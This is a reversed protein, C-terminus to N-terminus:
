WREEGHIRALLARATAFECPVECPGGVYHHHSEVMAEISAAMEPAAAILRANAAESMKFAAVGPITVRYKLGYGDDEETLWWPGPKWPTDSM